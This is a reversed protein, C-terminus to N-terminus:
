EFKAPFLVFFGSCGQRHVYEGIVAAEEILELLYRIFSGAALRLRLLIFGLVLPLIVFLAVLSVASLSVSLSIPAVLLAPVPVAPPIASPVILTPAAPAGVSLVAGGRTRRGGSLSRGTGLMTAVILRLVAMMRLVIMLEGRNLAVIVNRGDRREHRLRHLHLQGIHWRGVHSVQCRRVNWGGMHLPYRRRGTKAVIVTVHVIVSHLDCCRWRRM